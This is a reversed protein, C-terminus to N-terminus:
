ENVGSGGCLAVKGDKQFKAGGWLANGTGFKIYVVGDVCYERASQAPTHYEKGDVMVRGDCGALIFLSLVILMKKM